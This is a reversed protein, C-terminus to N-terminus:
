TLPKSSIKIAPLDFQKADAANRSAIALKTVCGRLFQLAPASRM